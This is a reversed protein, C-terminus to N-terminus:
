SAAAELKMLCANAVARDPNESGPMTAWGTAMMADTRKWSEIAMLRTMVAASTPDMKSQQLCVPVLAATVETRARDAAMTEATSATTWGAWGFGFIALAGAGAAASFLAQQTWEPFEM